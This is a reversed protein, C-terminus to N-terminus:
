TQIQQRPERSETHHRRGQTTRKIEESRSSDAGDVCLQNGNVEPPVHVQKQRSVRESTAGRPAERAHKYQSRQQHGGLLLCLAWAPAALRPTSCQTDGGPAMSRASEIGSKTAESQGKHPKAMFSFPFLSQHCPPHPLRSLSERPDHLVSLSKAGHNDTFCSVAPGPPLM